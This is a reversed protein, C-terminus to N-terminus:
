KIPAGHTDTDGDSLEHPCGLFMSLSFRPPQCGFASPLLPLTLTLDVRGSGAVQSLRLRDTMGQEQAVVVVRGRRAWVLVQVLANGCWM